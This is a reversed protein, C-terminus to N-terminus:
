LGKSIARKKQSYIWQVVTTAQRPLIHSLRNYILLAFTNCNESFLRKLQYVTTTPTVQLTLLPQNDEYRRIFIDCVEM